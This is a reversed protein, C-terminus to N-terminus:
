ASNQGPNQQPVSLLSELEKLRQLTAHSRERTKRGEIAHWRCNETHQAWMLPYKMMDTEYAMLGEKTMLDRHYEEERTLRKLSHTLYWFLFRLWLTKMTCWLNLSSGRWWM